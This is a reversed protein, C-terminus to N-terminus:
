DVFVLPNNLNEQEQDRDGERGPADLGVRLEAAAAVGHGRDVAELDRLALEGVLQAPLLVLQPAHEAARDVRRHEVRRLHVAGHQLRHDALAQHRALRRARVHEQRALRHDVGDGARGLELLVALERGRLIGGVESRLPDGVLAIDGVQLRLDRERAHGAGDGVRRDGWAGHHGLDVRELRLPALDGVGAQLDLLEQRLDLHAILLDLRIVLGILGIEAGGLPHPDFVHHERGLRERALIRRGLALHAGGVVGAGALQAHLLLAAGAVDQHLRLVLCEWSGPEASFPPSRPQNPRPM